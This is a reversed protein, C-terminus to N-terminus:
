KIPQDLHIFIVKSTVGTSANVGCTPPGVQFDNDNSIAITNGDLVTFGEIKQPM